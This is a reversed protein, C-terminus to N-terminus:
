CHDPWRVGRCAAGKRGGSDHGPPTKGGGSHFHSVRENPIGADKGWFPRATGRNGCGPEPV